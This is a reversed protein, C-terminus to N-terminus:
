TTAGTRASLHWGADDRRVAIDLLIALRDFLRRQEVGKVAIGGSFTRAAIGPAVTVPVGTTRALDAAIVAFSAKHYLLRGTRWSGVSSPDIEGVEILRSADASRLVRGATLSVAVGAPDYLVSGEAVAVTTTTPTRVVNFTTGVDKIVTNGVAVTFPAITDHVVTFTAEGLDIRVHRANDHDLAVHTAGNLDLRSGDALEITRHEGPGTAVSFETSATLPLGIAFALAAAAISGGVWYRAPKSWVRSRQNESVAAPKPATIGAAAVAALDDARFASEYANNHSPSAALWDGLLAWDDFSPDRARAIWMAAAQREDDTPM